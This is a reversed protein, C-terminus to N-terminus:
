TLRISSPKEVVPWNTGVHVCAVSESVTSVTKCTYRGVRRKQVQSQVLYFSVTLDLHRRLSGWQTLSQGTRAQFTWLQLTTTRKGSILCWWMARFVVSRLWMRVDIDCSKCASVGMWLLNKVTSQNMIWNYWGKSELHLVTSLDCVHM